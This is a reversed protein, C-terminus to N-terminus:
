LWGTDPTCNAIAWGTQQASIGFGFCCCLSRLAEGGGWAEGSPKRTPHRDILRPPPAPGPADTDAAAARRRPRTAGGCVWVSRLSSEPCALVPVAWCYPQGEGGRRRTIGARHKCARTCRMARIRSADGGAAPLTSVAVFAFRAPINAPGNNGPPSERTCWRSGAGGAVPHEHRQEDSTAPRQDVVCSSTPRAAVRAQSHVGRPM